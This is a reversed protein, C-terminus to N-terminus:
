ASADGSKKQIEFINREVENEFGVIEKKSVSLKDFKENTSYYRINDMYIDLAGEAESRGEFYFSILEVFGQNNAYLMERDIYKYLTNWGSKVTYSDSDNGRLGWVLSYNYETPNYFDVSLYGVDEFNTKSFYKGGGLFAIYASEYQGDIPSTKPCLHFSKTGDTIFNADKNLEAKDIGRYMTMSQIEKVSEFSLLVEGNSSDSAQANCGVFCTGCVLAAIATLFSIGKKRGKM